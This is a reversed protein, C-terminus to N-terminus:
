LKIEDETDVVDLPTDLPIGAAKVFWRARRNGAPICVAAGNEM